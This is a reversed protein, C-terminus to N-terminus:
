QELFKVKNQYMDLLYSMRQIDDKFGDIKYARDVVKDLEQHARLLRVNMPKPNKTALPSGYLEALSGSEEDRIDLIELMMDAIENKRRDSVQAIPFTNYVVSGSYRFDNRMRGGITRLWVMHMNSSLLGLLWLPADYIMTAGSPVVTDEGVYGFPVYYRNSSSPSPILISMMEDNNVNHHTQISSERANKTFFSYPTGAVARGSQGSTLRFEKVRNVREEVSQINRFKTYLNINMWLTYRVTDQMFDKSSIFKRIIQKADPHALLLEQMEDKSLILNGGDLAVCGLYSPPMGKNINKTTPRVMVTKGETLYPSIDVCKHVTTEDFLYKPGSYNKAALGVISVTIGANGKANNKWNFSSHAFYIQSHKLVYDWLYPVQEGQFISNTTVFSAKANTAEVYKSSEYLWGSVYDLKKYKASKPFVLQLDNSQNDNKKKAGEYPPNGFLYVEDNLKHPLAEDWDIRLANDCLIAGAHQLPLTPRVADTIQEHLKVNMQHEAIWLSLRTVDCAFDEIEIGYFQDLTVSPVYM